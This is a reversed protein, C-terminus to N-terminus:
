FKYGLSAGFQRRQAGTVYPSSVSYNTSDFFRVGAGPVDNDFVNNAFLQLYAGGFRATLRLDVTTKSPFFALNDARLSTYTQYQVDARAEISAGGLPVTVVPSVSWKSDPVYPLRRGDFNINPRGALGLLGPAPPTATPLGNLTVDVFSRYRAHTYAYGANVAFWENLKVAWDFEAGYIRSSATNATFSRNTSSGGATVPNQDVVQQDQWDIAYLAANFRLKGDFATSKLGVEFNNAYEPSYTRQNAFVNAGTNFGGTKAGRAYSAYVLTGDGFKYDLIVRPTVFSFSQRLDFLNTVNPNIVIATAATAGGAAPNTLFQQFRQREREYRLEASLHLADTIKYGASAFAAWSRTDIITRAFLFRDATAQTVPALSRDISDATNSYFFLGALWTFRGDDKSQIRLEQSWDRSFGIASSAAFNNTGVAIAPAFPFGFNPCGGVRDCITNDGDYTYDFGRYAYATITTVTVPGADYAITGSARISEEKDGFFTMRPFAATRNTLNVVGGNGVLNRFASAVTNGPQINLGTTSVLVGNQAISPLAGVYLLNRPQTASGGPPTGLGANNRIVNSAPQGDDDKSWTARLTVVLADEPQWEVTGSAGYGQEFDVRGGDIASTYFGDFKRYYGGLNFRLTESLPGSVSGVLKFLGNGGGTVEGRGTFERSPRKTVYNIAGAFTNRGYLASQPGKVVEVRELDNLELDVAAKGSLYVGDLFVGVNLQGLTQAVGRIIPLQNQKGFLPTYNLGPTLKAVDNLSEIRASQITDSGLATISLPVDQLSEARKRATVIIETSAAGEDPAPTAVQAQALAPAMACFSLLITRASITM